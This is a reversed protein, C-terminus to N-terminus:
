AGKVGGSPTVMIRDGTVLNDTDVTVGDRIVTIRVDTNYMERIASTNNAVRESGSRGTFDSLNIDVMTVSLTESVIVGNISAEVVNYARLVTEPAVSLGNITYGSGFNGYRGVFEQLTTGENVDITSGNFLVKIM